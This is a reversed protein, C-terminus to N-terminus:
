WRSTDDTDCKIFYNLLDKNCFVNDTRTHNGTSHSQLTPILLPLAMKIKHEDLMNLLPQALVLNHETFLHFNWPEDWIPHHWNFDGLWVQHTPNTISRPTLNTKIYTTITDLSDDNKCDNYINFLWINGISTTLEIATINPHEIHLQKWNNTLVNTNILIVSITAKPALPNGHDM